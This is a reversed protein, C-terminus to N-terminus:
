NVRTPYKAKTANIIADVWQEGNKKFSDQTCWALEPGAWVNGKQKGPNGNTTEYGYGFIKGQIAYKLLLDHDYIDHVISVFIASSKMSKLLKSTLLDKTMDNKAVAPLIVDSTNLLNELSVKKFRPDKSNKSWYQVDMGLGAMNEAIATGIKGMGIVGTTKGKLEIGKHKEYNQKFKDQMLVPIRRALLLVMMTAWEAVAVTSFGRLNTVPIDQKALHDVDIWTFSTTQLCVAKLNPIKDLVWNPVKWDCFDPDIALVCERLNIEFLPKINILPQIKSIIQLNGASKLKKLQQKNFLTSVNPTLIIIEM